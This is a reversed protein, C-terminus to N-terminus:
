RFEREEATPCLADALRWDRVIQCFAPILHAPITFGCQPSLWHSLTSPGVGLDIAVQKKQLGHILEADSLIDAMLRKFELSQSNCPVASSMFKEPLTM